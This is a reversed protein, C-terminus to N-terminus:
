GFFRRNPPVVHAKDMDGGDDYDNSRRDKNSKFIISSSSEPERKHKIERKTEKLNGYTTGFYLGLGVAPQSM